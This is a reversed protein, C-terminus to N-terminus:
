SYKEMVWLNWDFDCFDDNKCTEIDSGCKPCEPIQIIIKTGPPFSSSDLSIIDVWEQQMDGECFCEFTHRIQDLNPGSYLDPKQEAWMITKM